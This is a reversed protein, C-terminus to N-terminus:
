YVAELIAGLKEPLEEATSVVLRLFFERMAAVVSPELCLGIVVADTELQRIAQKSLDRDSVHRRSDVYVPQGGHVVVLVKLREPRSRLWKEAEEICWSMMEAGTTGTYGAILSKEDDGLAAGPQLDVM